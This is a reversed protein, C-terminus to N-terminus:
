PRLAARGSAIEQALRGDTQCPSRLTAVTVAHQDDRRCRGAQGALQLQLANAIGHCVRPSRCGAPGLEAPLRCFCHRGRTNMASTKWRAAPPRGIASLLGKVRAGSDRDAAWPRQGQTWARGTGAAALLRAPPGRRVNACSVGYGCAARGRSSQDFCGLQPRRVCWESGHQRRTRGTRGRFPWSIWGQLWAPRGCRHGFRAAGPFSRWPATTRRPRRAPASQCTSSPLRHFGQLWSPPAPLPKGGPV